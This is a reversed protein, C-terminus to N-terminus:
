SSLNSIKELVLARAQNLSNTGLSWNQEFFKVMTQFVMMKTEAFRERNLLRYMRVKKTCSTTFTSSTLSLENEVNSVIKYELLKMWFM